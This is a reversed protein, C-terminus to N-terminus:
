DQPNAHTKSINRMLWLGYLANPLVLLVPVFAALGGPSVNAEASQGSVSIGLVFTAFDWLGHVIIPVWLTGTRLRLAIFMLGSLFAATSQIVATTLDGTLFVNLTHVSGFMVSTLLVAPWIPLNHRFAQLLVGRFMVEESLGVFFTNLLVWFLVTVPPLGFIIAATFGAVIYLAPLWALLIDRATAPRNLGIDNWGQWLAIGIVFAAAIVFTWNLGSIVLSQLDSASPNLVHGGLVTILTWIVFAVLALTLRQTM